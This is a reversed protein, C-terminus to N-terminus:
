VSQSLAASPAELASPRAGCSCRSATQTKRSSRRLRRFRKVLHPVRPNCHASSILLCCLLLKFQQRYTLRRWRRGATMLLSPCKLLTRLVFLCCAMASRWFMLLLLGSYALSSASYRCPSSTQHGNMEAPPKQDSHNWRCTRTATSLNQDNTLCPCM